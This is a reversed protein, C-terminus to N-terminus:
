HCSTYSTWHIHNETHLWLSSVSSPAAPYCSSAPTRFVSCQVSFMSCMLCVQLQFSFQQICISFFMTISLYRVHNYVSLWHQGSFYVIALDVHQSDCLIYASVIRM